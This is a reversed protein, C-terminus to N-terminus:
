LGGTTKRHEELIHVANGHLGLRPGAQGRVFSFGGGTLRCLTLLSSGLSRSFALVDAPFITCDTSAHQRSSNWFRGTQRPFINTQTVAIQTCCSSGKCWNLERSCSEALMVLDKDSLASTLPKLKVRAWLDPTALLQPTSHKAHKLLRVDTPGATWDAYCVWFILEGVLLNQQHIWLCIHRIGRDYLEMLSTRGHGHVFMTNM